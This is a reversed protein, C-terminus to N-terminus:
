FSFLSFHMIKEQHFKSLFCLLFYKIKQLFGAESKLLQTASTSTHTSLGTSGDLSSRRRRTLPSWRDTSM